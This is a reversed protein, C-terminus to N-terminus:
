EERDPITERLTRRLLGAAEYPLASFGGSSERWPKMGPRNRRLDAETTDLDAYIELIAKLAKEFRQPKEAMYSLIFRWDAPRLEVEVSRGEDDKRGESTGRSTLRDSSISRIGRAYIWSKYRGM